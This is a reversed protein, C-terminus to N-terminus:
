FAVWGLRSQSGAIAHTLGDLLQDRVRASPTLKSLRPPVPSLTVKASVYAYYRKGEVELLPLEVAYDGARTQPGLEAPVLLAVAARRLGRKDNSVDCAPVVELLAWRVKRVFEQALEQTTPAAENKPAAAGAPAAEKKRLAKASKIAKEQSVFDRFALASLPEHVARELHQVNAAPILTLAGRDGASAAPDLHITTNLASRQAEDLTKGSAAKFAEAWVRRETKGLTGRVLRDHFVPGLTEFVREPMPPDRADAAKSLEVLIQAIDAADTSASLAMISSTVDHAAEAARSELDMLAKAVPNQALQDEIATAIQAIRFKNRSNLFASKDLGISVVPARGQGLSEKLVNFLDGVQGPHATWAVLVWPGNAPDLLADLVAAVAQHQQYPGAASPILNIDAFVIRIGRPCRRLQSGAKYLFPLVGIRKRHLASVIGALDTQQDDIAIVRAGHLM